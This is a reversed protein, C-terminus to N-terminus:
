RRRPHDPASEMRHRHVIQEAVERWQAADWGEACAQLTGDLRIFVFAPLQTLGLRTVCRARDPDCYM